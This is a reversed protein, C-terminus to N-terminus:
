EMLLPGVCRMVESDDSLAVQMGKVSGLISATFALVLHQSIKDGSARNSVKCKDGVIMLHGSSM